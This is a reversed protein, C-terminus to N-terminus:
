DESLLGAAATLSVARQLPDEIGGAATAVEDVLATESDGDTALTLQALAATRAAPDVLAEIMARADELNGEGAMAAALAVRADARRQAQTAGLDITAVLGLLRAARTYDG